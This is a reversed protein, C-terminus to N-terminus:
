ARGHRGEPLRAYTAGRQKFRRRSFLINHPYANLDCLDALVKIRAEVESRDKGHIMCFLNYQWEPLQRPRRYCLTVRGTTAVRHGIDSVCADPVDWVAMANATYGLEHHRVVVGFRKIIGQELWRAMITLAAREPLGLRAFPQPVLPLGNQLAAVLAQEQSDLDIRFARSPVCAPLGPAAVFRALGHDSLDFGLDIHYDEIMPLVLVPGCQCTAEIERLAAHLQKECSATAVFWLNFRHEREYNHNVEPMASVITAVTELREPPVALAALTSAGIANPRFVPGIRSILGCDQLLQFRDIVTAEDVDLQEALVSFPRATLPFDHQFSNLLKFDLNSLTAFREANM